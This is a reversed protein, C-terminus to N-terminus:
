SVSFDKFNFQGTVNAAHSTAILGADQKEAIGPLTVTPGVKTWTTGNKSYYGSVQNDTRVLRVWVPATVGSAGSFSDLYGNGNADWQFAVGNGPTAVVAAYGPSAASGTLDNRLVVGAKAWANTNDMRTVQATVTATAGAADDRYIAGYEDFSGGADQWIDAGSTLIVFEGGAEAFQSPVSGHSKMSTLPNLATVTLSRTLSFAAQDARGTVTAKVEARSVPTAVSAPATVKWTESDSVGSDLGYRVPKGVREAQWGAPVTLAVAFESARRPSFNRVTVTVETSEGARLTPPNAALAAGVPPRQAEPAGRHDGTPGAEYIVRSAELPLTAETVTLNGRAVNGRQGNTIGTIAPNTAFNDILTLDGTRNGNQNNAHAWQAATRVFVNRSASLYRSGEDFYLGLQGSNECYNEDIVSRPMASLTYICGADFMTQVVNRVHNGVVRVDSLTTPTDYVPQFDYLGRNVYEPSGGPDNAGWGYGLGIGTYPMDSVYNHEISLRTVYSAFIADQDLYELATAFVRNNSISIDSNIMRPDSPHHADPRVGGVMIGGGANATFTSGVVSVKRAGLGVASAHANADNGIGLAVSGLNTFTSGTFAIDEAASVQVASSSQAWGNRSGEFGKCGFACSTFGDAPRHPQVGSIFVGTQQNAYGDNTGPHLWTTGTFTLNEFRLNRAPADYTGGVQLLSELRPLEVRAKTMDQGSLPKYYLVGATTDLYWEGAEDLFRKSNLLTFTAARLPSQITDYGYTNNDWAPQQMVVTSGTISQVPAFRNTFSLMAQLEIRKQDPLGSLYSLAPNNITFGAANLTIDSRAIRLRARQALKGDVYLQRTDFGTGVAAKYVGTAADDLEWGTVPTAGSIVPHADRAATWTVAAGEDASDAADLRLPATLRHVGDLLEVNVNINGQALAARVRRQAEGLTALPEDRRGSGDDDANAAGTPAVVITQSTPAAHAPASLTGALLAATLAAALAAAPRRRTKPSPRM